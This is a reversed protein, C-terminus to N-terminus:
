QNSKTTATSGSGGVSGGVVPATGPRSSRPTVLEESFPLLDQFQKYRLQFFFPHENAGSASPAPSIGRAARMDEAGQLIPAFANYHLLKVRDVESLSGFCTNKTSLLENKLYNHLDLTSGTEQTGTATQSSNKEYGLGREM